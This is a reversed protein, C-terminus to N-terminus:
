SHISRQIKGADKAKGAMNSNGVSGVNAARISHGGIFIGSYQETLRPKPLKISRYEPRGRTWAPM